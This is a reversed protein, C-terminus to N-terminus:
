RQGWRRKWARFADVVMFGVRVRKEARSSVGSAAGIFTWDIPPKTQLKELAQIVHAERHLIISLVLM